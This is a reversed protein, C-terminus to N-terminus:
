QASTDDLGSRPQPPGIGLLVRELGFLCLAAVLSTVLWYQWLEPMSQDLGDRVQQSANVNLHVPSFRACLLRIAMFYLWAWPWARVELDTTSSCHWWLGAVALGGLHSLYSAASISPDLWLERVWLPTGAVIWLIGMRTVLPRGLLMGLAMLLNAQHCMWLSDWAVGRRANDMLDILFLALPTLGRM